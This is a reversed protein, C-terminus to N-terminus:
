CEKKNKHQRYSLYQLLLSGAACCSEVIAAAQEPTLTTLLQHAYGAPYTFFDQM